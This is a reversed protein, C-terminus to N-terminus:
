LIGYNKEGGLMAVPANGSLASNRVQKDLLMASDGFSAAPIGGNGARKSARWWTSAAM